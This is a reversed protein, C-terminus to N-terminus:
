SANEVDGGIMALYDSEYMWKYGACTLQRGSCAGSLSAYSRSVSKAAEGISQFTTIYNGATSMQVAGRMTPSQHTKVYEKRFESIKKRTEDTHKKGFFPNNKGASIERLHQVFELSKPLRNSPRTHASESMKRKTEETHKRGWWAANEGYLHNGGILHNYGCLPNTTDYMAIWYIERDDLLDNECYELVSVVFAEPDANWAKQLYDNAHKGNKLEYIHDRCRKRVNKSLGIYMKNNHTNLLQYIGPADLLHPFKKIM